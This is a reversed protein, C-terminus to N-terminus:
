PEPQDQEFVELFHHLVRDTERLEQVWENLRQRGANTIQYVRRAPGATTETDWESEVFDHTEMERLARYVLSPNVNGLGLPELASTM